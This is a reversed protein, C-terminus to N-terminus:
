AANLTVPVGWVYNTYKNTANFRLGFTGGNLYEQFTFYHDDTYVCVPSSDYNTAGKSSDFGYEWAVVRGVGRNNSAYSSSTAIDFEYYSPYGGIAKYPVSTAYGDTRTYYSVCRTNEGFTYYTSLYDSSAVYNAPKTKFITYFAAVELPDTYSSEEVLSPNSIVYDTTYYTFTKSSVVTYTDGFKTINWPVSVSAGEYLTDSFVIPNIRYDGTGSGSYAFSTSGTIINSYSIQISVISLSNQNTQVRFYNADIAAITETKNSTSLPLSFAYSYGNKGYLISPLNGSSSSTKYTIKIESMGIIPDINYIAGAETGDGYTELYPLLTIFTGDYNKVTRYYEFGYYSAYTSGYNGTTYSNSSSFNSDDIILSYNSTESSTDGSSSSEESSSSGEGGGEDAAVMDNIDRLLFQMKVSGSSNILCHLIGTVDFSQESYGYDWTQIFYNINSTNSLSAYYLPVETADSNFSAYNYNGSGIYHLNVNKITILRAGMSQAYQFETSYRDTKKQWFYSSMEFSQVPYKNTAYDITISSSLPTDFEPLNNYLIPTGTITIVNGKM